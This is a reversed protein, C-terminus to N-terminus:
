NDKKSDAAANGLLFTSLGAIAQAIVQVKGTGATAFYGSIAALLGFITTKRNKMKIKKQNIFISLLIFLVQVLYYVWFYPRM